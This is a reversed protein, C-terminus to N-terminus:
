DRRENKLVETLIQSKAKIEDYVTIATKDVVNCREAASKIVRYRYDTFEIDRQSCFEEFTERQLIRNSKQTRVGIWNASVWQNVPGEWEAKKRGIPRGAKAVKPPSERRPLTLIGIPVMVAIFASLITQLIFQLWAPDLGFLDHYFEYINTSKEGVAEHTVTDQRLASLREQNETILQRLEAQRAEAVALTTRWYGRDALSGVTVNIQERVDQYESQLLEIRSRAETIEDQRVAEAVEVRSEAELVIGLSFAQGASTAMISYIALPVIILWAWGKRRWVVALALLLTLSAGISVALWTAIGDNNFRWYYYWIELFSGLTIMSVPFVFQKM